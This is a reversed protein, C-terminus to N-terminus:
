VTRRNSLHESVAGQLLWSNSLFGNQAGVCTRLSAQRDGDIGDVDVRAAGPRAHAGTKQRM